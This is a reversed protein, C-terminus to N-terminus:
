VMTVLVSTQIFLSALSIYLNFYLVVLGFPLNINDIESFILFNEFRKVVVISPEGAHIHRRSCTTLMNLSSGIGIMLEHAFNKWTIKSYLCYLQYPGIVKFVIYFLMAMNM